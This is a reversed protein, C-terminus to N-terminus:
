LSKWTDVLQRTLEPSRVGLRFFTHMEYGPAGSRVPLGAAKSAAVVKKAVVADKCDVWIWSLFDAGHMEWSPHQEQIMTVAERRWATTCEWTKELYATDKVVQLCVDMVFWAPKNM